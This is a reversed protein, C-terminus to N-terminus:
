ARDVQIGVTYWGNLGFEALGRTMAEFRYRPKLKRVESSLSDAGPARISIAWIATRTPSFSGAQALQQPVLRRAGNSHHQSTARYEVCYRSCSFGSRSYPPVASTAKVCFSSEHPEHNPAQKQRHDHSSHNGRRSGYELRGRASRHPM